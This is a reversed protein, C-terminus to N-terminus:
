ARIRRASADSDLQLRSFQNISIEESVPSFPSRGGLIIAAVRFVYNKGSQLYNITLTNTPLQVTDWSDGPREVRQYQVLSSSLHTMEETTWSLTIVGRRKRWSSKDLLKLSKFFPLPIKRDLFKWPWYYIGLKQLSQGAARIPREDYFVLYRVNTDINHNTIWDSFEQGPTFFRRRVALIRGMVSGTSISWNMWSAPQSNAFIDNFRGMECVLSGSQEALSPLHLFVTFTKWKPNRTESPRTGHSVRLRTARGAHEFDQDTQHHIWCSLEKLM